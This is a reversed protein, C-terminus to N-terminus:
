DQFHMKKKKPKQSQFSKEIKGEIFGRLHSGKM